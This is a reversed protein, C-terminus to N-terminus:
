REEQETARKEIADIERLEEVYHPNPHKKIERILDKLHTERGAHIYYRALDIAFHALKFNNECIGRLSENTLETPM